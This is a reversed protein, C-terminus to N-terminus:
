PSVDAIPIVMRDGTVLDVRMLIEFDGVRLGRDAPFAMAGYVLLSGDAALAMASMDHFPLPGSGRMADSVITRNGTMSDVQLLSGFDMVLLSGDAAVAIASPLGFPPGSGRTADSVITRNGTMPDVRVVAPPANDVVVLHGDAEVAIDRLAGLTPGSGLAAHSVVTRAGTGPDMQLLRGGDVLLLSGDAALAIASPTGFPPGSGRTADAVTTCASTMPDIRSLIFIPRPTQPNSAVSLVVLSGDEEAVIDIMFGQCDIPVLRTAEGTILNIHELNASPRVVRVVTGEPTVAIAPRSSISARGGRAEGKTGGTSGTSEFPTGEGDGTNIESCSSMAILFFMHLTLLVASRKKAQEM